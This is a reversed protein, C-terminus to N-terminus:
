IQMLVQKDFRTMKISLKKPQFLYAILGALLNIMFSTCRCHRSHEIQSINKLQDFITEIIFRKRLMLHDWLKMVKPNM